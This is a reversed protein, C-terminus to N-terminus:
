RLIWRLIELDESTDINISKSKSMEYLAPIDSIVKKSRLLYSVNTIYISGNRIYLKEHEQRRIGANHLKSLPLAMDGDKHYCVLECIYDESYVSILSDVGTEEFIRVAEIIDTLERLPSTPQLLIIADFIQEINQFFKVAHLMFDVSKANDGSINEPRLFPVAAGYQKAVEAIKPSDTSVIAISTNHKIIFENAIEISYAIIPKGGVDVINKDPIGKSGGRAPIIILYKKENNNLVFM